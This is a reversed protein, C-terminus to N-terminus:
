VNTTSPPTNKMHIHLQGNSDAYALLINTCDHINHFKQLDKDIIKGDIIIETCLGQNQTKKLVSLRGSTELIAFEIEAIDFADKQRCEELLDNVNLQSKRLGKEIIKGNEILVTPTGDLLKRGSYSKMSVFSFIVSFLTFVVLGTLGHSYRIRPDIAFQAAISGISIGITYDFFNLQAIQKKGMLRTLVFLTIIAVISHLVVTLIERM